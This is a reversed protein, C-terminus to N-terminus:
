EAPTEVVVTKEVVVRGHAHGRRRRGLMGLLVLWFGLLGFALPFSWVSIHPGTSTCTLTAGLGSCTSSVGVLGQALATPSGILYHVTALFFGITGWVAWSSRSTWYAWVVFVLSMFSVVAYDVDSTHCWHLISVGILAGGVLHLWFASPMDSVNGVLLYLLGVLLAWVYTLNTGDPLVSVVLLFFLSASIVRIFPFRFRRRDDHAALLVLLILALRSWSWRDIPANIGHWGWWTFVGAVFVAWALVSAFAFIGAALWRDARRLGHAIGYLVVLILLAWATMQGNGHFQTSLYGLAGFGALLVTLGGTYVLFSSTTWIPKTERV